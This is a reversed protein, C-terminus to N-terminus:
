IYIDEILKKVGYFYFFVNNLIEILDILSSNYEM